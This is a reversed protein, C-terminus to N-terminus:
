PLIVGVKLANYTAFTCTQKKLAPTSLIAKKLNVYLPRRMWYDMCILKKVWSALVSIQFSKKKLCHHPFKIEKTM